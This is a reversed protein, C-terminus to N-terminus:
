WEDAKPIWMPVTVLIAFEKLGPVRAAVYECVPRMDQKMYNFHEENGRVIRNNKPMPLADRFTFTLEEPGMCDDFGVERAFWAFFDSNKVGPGLVAGPYSRSMRWCKDIQIRVTIQPPAPSTSEIQLRQTYSRARVDDQFTTTAHGRDATEQSVILSSPPSSQEQSMFRFNPQTSQAIKSAATRKTSTSSTPQPITGNRQSPITTVLIRFQELSPNESLSTAFSTFAMQKLAQFNSRDKSAIITSWNHGGAAVDLSEFKLRDLYEPSSVLGSYHDFFETVSQSMLANVGLIYRGTPQDLSAFLIRGISQFKQSTATDHGRRSVLTAIEYAYSPDPALSHNSKERSSHKSGIHSAGALASKSQRPPSQLRATSTVVAPRIGSSEMTPGKPAQGFDDQQRPPSCLKSVDPDEQGPAASRLTPSSLGDALPSAQTASHPSNMATQGSIAAAPSNISVTADSRKITHPLNLATLQVGEQTDAATSSVEGDYASPRQTLTGSVVNPEMIKDPQLNAEDLASGATNHPTPHSAQPSNKRPFEDHSHQPTPSPSSESNQNHRVSQQEIHERKLSVTGPLTFALSDTESAEHAREDMDICDSTSTDSAAIVRDDTRQKKASRCLPVDAGRKDEGVGVAVIVNMDCHELHPLSRCLIYEMQRFSEEQAAWATNLLTHKSFGWGRQILLCDRKWQLTSERILASCKSALASKNLETPPLGTRQIISDILASFTDARSPGVHYLNHRHMWRYIYNLLIPPWSADKELFAVGLNRLASTEDSTPRISDVHQSYRDTNAM